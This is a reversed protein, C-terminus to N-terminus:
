NEHKWVGDKVQGDVPTENLFYTLCEVTEGDPMLVSVMERNYFSLDTNFENYGELMDLRSLTQSDVEFVEGHIPGKHSKSKIVGPFSGLSFMAFNGYLMGESLFPSDGLVTNNGFGRKLSGYVFVKMTKEKQETESELLNLLLNADAMVDSAYDVM